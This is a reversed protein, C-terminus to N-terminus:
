QVKVYKRLNNFGVDAAYISGQDDVAIGSASTGTDTMKTLDGPDPILYKLDGTIADGVVIARNNPGATPGNTSRGGSETQYTAGVYINDRKDVYVSSPQGFQKWAAIFTGNQDFVQIRDNQRDAVYVYGKSGGVYLDHPERFNGPDSGMRGWEKIFTGDASYKVIRANNSANRSHGDAVFIDGNQAISVGTPRDFLYPGNGGVGPKGITMLVKGTPSIKLVTQGIAVGQADKAPVGLITEEDNTDTTWINGNRDVTFGHPHAFLGVGFSRLLRGAPSFELIPPNDAGRDLCSADGSPKDHFCRHFVWINGNSAVHVRIVEGWKRGNPGKMNAPLTPWGPVLRYPNPLAAPKPVPPERRDQARTTSCVMAVGVACALLALGTRHATLM